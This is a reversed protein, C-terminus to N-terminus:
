LLKSYYHFPFAIIIFLTSCPSLPVAVSGTVVSPQLASEESRHIHRFLDWEIGLPPPLSIAQPLFMCLYIYVKLM